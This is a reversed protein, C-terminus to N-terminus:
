LAANADALIPKLFPRIFVCDSFPVFLEITDETELKRPEGAGESIPTWNQMNSSCEFAIEYGLAAAPISGDITSKHHTYLVGRVGNETTAQKSDWHFDLIPKLIIERSFTASTELSASILGSNNISKPTIKCANAEIGEPLIAQLDKEFHPLLAISGTNRTWIIPSYGNQSNGATGAVVELDNLAYARAAYTPAGPSEIEFGAKETLDYLYATHDREGVIVNADNIGRATYHDAQFFDADIEALDRSGLATDFIFAHENYSQTSEGFKQYTGVVTGSANLAEPQTMSYGGISHLPSIDTRGTEFSWTFAQNGAPTNGEFLQTTGLTLGEDNIEYLATSGSGNTSRSGLEDLDVLGNTADWYFPFTDFHTGEEDRHLYTKTGVVQQFRNISSANLSSFSSPYDSQGSAIQTIAGNKWVAFTTVRNLLTEGNENIENSQSSVRNVPSGMVEPVILEYRVQAELSSSLSIASAAALATLSTIKSLTFHCM